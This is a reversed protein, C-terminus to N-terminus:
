SLVYLRLNHKTSMNVSAIDGLNAILKVMLTLRAGHDNGGFCGLVTGEVSARYLKVGIM